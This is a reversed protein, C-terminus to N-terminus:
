QGCQLASQARDDTGKTGQTKRDPRHDTDAGGPTQVAEQSCMSVREAGASSGNTTRCTRKMSCISQLCQQESLNEARWTLLRVIARAEHMQRLQVTRGTGHCRVAGGIEEKLVDEPYFAKM